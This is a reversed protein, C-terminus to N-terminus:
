RWLEPDIRRQDALAEDLAPDKPAKGVVDAFSRHRVAARELGLGEAMAELAVQNLAKREIRARRRLAADLQKSVNRITYQTRSAPM